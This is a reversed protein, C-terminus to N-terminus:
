SPHHLFGVAGVTLGGVQRLYVKDDRAKRRSRSSRRVDSAASQRDSGKRGVPREVAVPDYSRVVAGDESFGFNTSEGSSPSPNSSNTVGRLFEGRARWTTGRVAGGAQLPVCGSLSSSNSDFLLSDAFRLNRRGGRGRPSVREPIPRVLPISPEFRPSAALSSLALRASSSAASPSRALTATPSRIMSAV